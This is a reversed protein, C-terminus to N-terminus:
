FIVNINIFVNFNALGKKGTSKVHNGQIKLLIVTGDKYKPRTPGDVGRTNNKVWRVTYFGHIQATATAAVDLM